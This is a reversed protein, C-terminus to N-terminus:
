LSDKVIVILYKFSNISNHKNPLARTGNSFAILKFAANNELVIGSAATWEHQQTKNNPLFVSNYFEKVDHVVVARCHEESKM